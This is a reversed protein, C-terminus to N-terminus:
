SRSAPRGSRILELLEDITFLQFHVAINGEDLIV